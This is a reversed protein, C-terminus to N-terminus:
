RRKVRLDHSMDLKVQSEVADPRAFHRRRQWLESSLNSLWRMALRSSQRARLFSGVLACFDVTPVKLQSCQPRVKIKTSKKRELEYQQTSTACKSGSIPSHFIEVNAFSIVIVSSGCLV